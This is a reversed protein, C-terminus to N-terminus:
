GRHRMASRQGHWAGSAPSCRRRSRRPPRTPPRSRPRRGPRRGRGRGRPRQRWRRARDSRVTRVADALRVSGGSRGGARDLV